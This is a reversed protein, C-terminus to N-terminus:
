MEIRSDFQIAEPKIDLNTYPVKIVVTNDLGDAQNQNPNMSKPILIKGKAIYQDNIMDTYMKDYTLLLPIASVLQSEGFRLDPITQSGSTNKVLWCGINKFPLKVKVNLKVDGYSAKFANKVEDPIYRWDMGKMEQPQPFTRSNILGEEPMIMYQVYPVENNDYFRQEILYWNKVQQSESYINNTQQELVDTFIKSERVNGRADVNILYRDIRIPELWVDDNTTNAVVLTSGGSL